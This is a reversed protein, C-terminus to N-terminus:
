LDLEAEIRKLQHRAMALNARAKDLALYLFMGSTGRGKLLRILHYQGGLTILIDEIEDKLGLHEMTRVKARVVDTNGAAAVTLDLDKSGGLTGLAMGSTYDVLAVGLTGEISTMAEKLATETNPM